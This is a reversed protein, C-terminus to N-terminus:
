PLEGRSGGAFSLAVALILEVQDRRRAPDLTVLAHAAVNLLRDQIHVEPIEVRSIALIVSAKFLTFILLSTTLRM